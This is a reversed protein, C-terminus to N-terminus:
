AARLGAWLSLFLTSLPSTSTKAWPFSSIDNRSLSRVGPVARKVKLTTWSYSFKTVNMFMSSRPIAVNPPGSLTACIM